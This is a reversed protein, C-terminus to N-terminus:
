CDLIVRFSLEGIALTDGNALVEGHPRQVGNLASGGGSGTDFVVARDGDAQLAIARRGISQHNLVLDVDPARGLVFPRESALLVEIPADMGILTATLRLPVLRLRIM